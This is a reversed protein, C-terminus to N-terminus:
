RRAAVPGPRHCQRSGAVWPRRWSPWSPWASGRARVVGPDTRPSTPSSCGNSIRPRSAWGTMASRVLLVRAGERGTAVQVRHRAFHLANEVLNSLIQGLRDADAEVVLPRLTGVATLSVDVSAALRPSADVATQWM